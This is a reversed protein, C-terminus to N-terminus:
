ESLRLSSVLFRSALLCHHQQDLFGMEPPMAPCLHDYSQYGPLGISPYLVAIINSLAITSIDRSFPPIHDTTLKLDTSSSDFNDQCNGTPPRRDPTLAPAVPRAEKM